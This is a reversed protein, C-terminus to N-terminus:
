KNPAKPAADKKPGKKPEDMKKGKNAEKAKEEAKRLMNADKLIKNMQYTSDQYSECVGYIYKNIKM